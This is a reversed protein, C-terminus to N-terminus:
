ASLVNRGCIVHFFFTKNIKGLEQKATHPWWTDGLNITKRAVKFTDFKVKDCGDIKWIDDKFVKREEQASGEGVIHTRSEDANGCSCKQAGEEKEM